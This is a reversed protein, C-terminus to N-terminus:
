GHRGEVWRRLLILALAREDDSAQQVAAERLQAIWAVNAGPGDCAVTLWMLGSARQRTGHEGNFLIRGLLAQAKYHGKNAALVLWPVARRPDQTVGNGDLYLRALQYQAEADGFYSAAHAFMRRAREPCAAVVSNPIGELYYHGLAVFANAVFRSRPIAPNEDAHSDAFKRFYEFARYDDRKVGDGDAYMRGLQWLAFGHGHEAAYQLSTVARTKEGTRLAENATRFADVPSVAAAADPSPSGDLALVPWAGLAFAVASIGAVVSFIRM